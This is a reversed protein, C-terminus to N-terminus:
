VIALGLTKAPKEGVITLGDDNGDSFFGWEMLYRM